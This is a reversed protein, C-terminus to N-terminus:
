LWHRKSSRFGFWYRCYRWNSYATRHGLIIGSIFNNVINQLGFGIGVGLAGMAIALKDFPIGAGALAMVFGLIILTFRIMLSITNPIGRHLHVRPFVEKDLFYRIFNSLWVSFQIIIFFAFINGLSISVDGITFPAHLFALFANWVVDRVTLLGLTIYIWFGFGLIRLMFDVKKLVKESDEQLIFSKKFLPGLLILFLFSKALLIVESLLIFLIFTGLISVTLLQTLQLAGIINAIIGVVSILIFTHIIFPLFGFWIDEVEALEEKQNKVWLLILCAGIDIGLLSIRQTIPFYHLQPIILFLLFLIIFIIVRNKSRHKDMLWFMASVPILMFLAILRTLEIPLDMFLRVVFWTLILSSFVPRQLIVKSEKLEEPFMTFFETSNFRLYLFLSLFLLFTFGTYYPLHPNNRIFSQVIHLSNQLISGFKPRERLYDDNLSMKWIPPYEPIWLQQKIQQNKDELLTTAENFDSYTITLSNNLQQLQDTWDLLNSQATVLRSILSDLDSELKSITNIKATDRKTSKSKPDTIDVEDIPLSDRTLRGIKLLSDIKSKKVLADELWQVESAEWKDLREQILDLERKEKDLIDLRYVVTSDSLKKLKTDIDSSAGPLEAMIQDLSAQQNTMENVERVLRRSAKGFDPIQSIALPQLVRNLTDVSITDQAGINQSFLSLFLFLLSCRKIFNTENRLFLHMLQEFLKIM